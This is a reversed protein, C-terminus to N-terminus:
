EMQSKLIAIEEDKTALEAKLREIEIKLHIDNTVSIEKICPCDTRGYDAAFVTLDSRDVDGNHDFDGMCPPECVKFISMQGRVGVYACHDVTNVSLGTPLGYIPIPPCLVTDTNGDVIGVSMGERM